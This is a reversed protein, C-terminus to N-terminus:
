ICAEHCRNGQEGFFISAFHFSKLSLKSLGKGKRGKGNKEKGKKEKKKEPPLQNAGWFPRELLRLLYHELMTM